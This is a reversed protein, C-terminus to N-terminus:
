VEKPEVKPTTSILKPRRGHYAPLWTEARIMVKTVPFNYPYGSYCYCLEGDKYISGNKLIQLFYGEESARNKAILKRLGRQPPPPSRLSYEIVEPLTFTNNHDGYYVKCTDNDSTYVCPFVAYTAHVCPLKYSHIGFSDPLMIAVIDDSLLLEQESLLRDSSHKGLATSIKRTFSLSPELATRLIIHHTAGAGEWTLVGDNLSLHTAIPNDDTRHIEFIM